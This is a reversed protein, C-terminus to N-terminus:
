SGNGRMWSVCCLVVRAYGLEGIEIGMLLCFYWSVCVVSPVLLLICTIM